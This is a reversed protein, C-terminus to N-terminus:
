DSTLGGVQAIADGDVPCVWTAQNAVTAPRLPHGTPHHPCRPWSVSEGNSWLGEMVIEQVQDAMSVIQTTDDDGTLVSIGTGTGDPLWVMATAQNVLESWEDRKLTLSIDTTRAVDALVPELALRVAPDIAEHTM